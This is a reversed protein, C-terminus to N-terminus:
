PAWVVQLGNSLNFTSSTCFAAGNRYWAQYFRTAGAAPVLGRVSISPDGGAPYQSSGGSNTKTGLRIVTGSACRKGDGFVFGSDGNSALTGQFYLCTATSPMGSAQLGFTDVSVTANGAGALNAGGPNVSSACGNGTAGNNGCPCATGTGDGFCYSTVLGGSGGDWLGGQIDYGTSGSSTFGWAGFYRQRPGGSAAMSHLAFDDEAVPSGAFNEHVSSPVLTSASPFYDSIWVNTDLSSPVVETYGVLFHRGDSDVRANLQRYASTPAHDLSLNRIARVNTGSILAGIIDEDAGASRQYVILAYREGSISDLVTSVSPRAEDNTSVDVPFMSTLLAGDWRVQRAYIDHDTSTFERRWVITWLEPASVDQLGISNSIAPQDHRQFGLSITTVSGSLTGAPTVMQMEVRVDTSSVIHSWVVCYRSLLGPYPDGGVDPVYRDTTDAPSIQFQPGTSLGAPDVLRGAIYAPFSAIPQVEVAAVVLFNDSGNNNAIKPTAWYDTTFDITLVGLTAGSATMVKAYVDFDVTSFMQTWVACWRDSTVDYSVDPFFEASNTGAITFFTVFPDITLPLSANAVFSSPVTLTIAGDDYTRELAIRAGTADIAFAQGYDVHGLENSFRLADGMDTVSLETEVDIHVALDGRQPLSEFVFRQELREEELEYEEVFAGRDISVTRGNRVARLPAESPLTAGDLTAVNAGFVIPYNQPADSGFFPVITARDGEFSAKFGQGRAWVTGNASEDFMLGTPVDHAAALVESPVSAGTTPAPRTADAGLFPRPAPPPPRLLGEALGEAGPTVNTLGAAAKQPPAEFTESQGPAPQALLLLLACPTLATAARKPIPQDM